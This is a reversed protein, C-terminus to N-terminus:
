GNLAEEPAFLELQKNNGFQYSRGDGWCYAKDDTTIVCTGYYGSNLSRITKGALNGTISVAIPSSKSEYIDSGMGLVGHSSYGWCAATNDTAVTCFFGPSDGAILKLSKGSLAGSTVVATPVDKAISTGNSAPTVGIGLQGYSANNGWCYAKQDSAIACASSEAIDLSVLTKGALAGSRYIAVPTTQPGRNYASGGGDGVVGDQAKGWCYGNSDSAKVCVTYSEASLSSITKGALAGNMNVAVPTTSSSTTGNGFQGYSNNGWCHGSGDTAVACTFDIAVHISKIGKGSLSGTKAVQVPVNSNTTSGDGLQGASNRGWCYANNDTSTVCVHRSNVTIQRLTKGTMVGDSKVAVPRPSTTNLGDGLVGSDQTTTGWCYAKGSTSLGCGNGFGGLGVEQWAIVTPTSGGGGGGGSSACAGETPKSNTSSIHYVVGEYLSSAGEICYTSLDGSKYKVGVNPSGNYNDPKGDLSYIPYGNKFNKGSEMVSAVQQLDSQVEKEALSQRWSGYGVISVAALIGIVTIIVALEVITFAKTRSNNIKM